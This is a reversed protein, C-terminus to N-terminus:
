EGGAAALRDVARRLRRIGDEIAAPAPYAFSLRLCNRPDAPGVFASGPIFAVGEELALPLLRDADCGEPLQMWLFFGGDPQTWSAGSAGAFHRRLAQEMADRRERYTGRLAAVHRAWGDGALMAAALRQGPLNTCTDMGQKADIMRAIVPAPGLVWGVRLGPALVKSFTHVAVVRGRGEDLSWLSPPPPRDFHIWGYPDDELVVADYREALALLERRRALSLTCGGPNQFSPVTYILKPARGAKAVLGPILDTRLGEADVPCRLVEGEYSTVIAVGNSYTPTEVLVLDGRDVFLKCVLDLGQTGGATILLQDDGAATGRRRLEALLAARLGREGETPGYSLVAAGPEAFAGAAAAALAEAPVAEPAPAGIAFPIVDRTQRQLLAISADIPSGPIGGARAAFRRSISAAAPRAIPKRVSATM